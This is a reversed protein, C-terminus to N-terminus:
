RFTFSNSFAVGIPRSATGTGETRWEGGILPASQVRFSRRQMIPQANITMKNVDRNNHRSPVRMSTTNTVTVRGTVSFGVEAEIASNSAGFGASVTREVSGSVSLSLNMGPTGSTSAFISGYQNSLNQVNNVRFRRPSPPLLIRAQSSRPKELLEFSDHILDPDLVILYEIEPNNLWEDWMAEEEEPTQTGDIVLLSEDDFSMLEGDLEIVEHIELEQANVMTMPLLTGIMLAVALGLAIHKKSLTIFDKIRTM